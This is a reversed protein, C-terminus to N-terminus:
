KYEVPKNFSLAFNNMHGFPTIRKRHRWAKFNQIPTDVGSIIAGISGPKFQGNTNDPFGFLGTITAISDQVRVKLIMQQIFGGNDIDKPETEVINFNSDIKKLSYGSDLLRNVADKFTISHVLIVSTNIPIEQANVINFFAGLIIVCFITKM